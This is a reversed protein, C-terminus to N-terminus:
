EAEREFSFPNRSVKKLSWENLLYKHYSFGKTWYVAPNM